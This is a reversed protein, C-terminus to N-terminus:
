VKRWGAHKLVSQREICYAFLCALMKSGWSMFSLRQVCGVGRKEKVLGSDSNFSPLKPM